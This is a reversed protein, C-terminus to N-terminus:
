GCLMQQIVEAGLDELLRELERPRPADGLVELGDETVAIRIRVLRGRPDGGYDEPQILDPLHDVFEYEAM